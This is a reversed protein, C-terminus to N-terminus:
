RVMEFDKPPFGLTECLIFLKERGCCSGFELEQGLTNCGGGSPKGRPHDAM